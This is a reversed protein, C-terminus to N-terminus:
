IVAKEQQGKRKQKAKKHEGGAPKDKAEKVAQAFFLMREVHNGDASKNM